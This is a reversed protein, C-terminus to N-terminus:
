APGTGLIWSEAEAAQGAAFHRIEASVFQSGLKEAVDALKTDTVIAIKKIRKHHDRLFRFHAAMAGLSDWGPFGPAEIVVGKLNGQAELYPDVVSTLEAFDSEQLAGKPRLHLIGNATDLTHELM